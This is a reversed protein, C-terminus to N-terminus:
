FQGRAWLGIGVADWIHESKYFDKEVHLRKCIRYVTARKDMQGKWTNVPVLHVELHHDRCIQIVRGVHVALKVLSGSKATTQGGLSPFFAPEEIYAGNWCQKDIVGLLDAFGECISDSRTMWELDKGRIQFLYTQIPCLVEGKAPGWKAVGTGEIGADISIFCNLFSM